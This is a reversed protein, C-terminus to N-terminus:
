KQKPVLIYARQGSTTTLWRTGVIAGWGTAAPDTIANPNSLAISVISAAQQWAADANTVLSDVSFLGEGEKYIGDRGSAIGRVISDNQENIDAGYGSSSLVSSVGSNLNLAVSGSPIANKGKGSGLFRGTVVDANDRLGYFRYSSSLDVVTPNSYDYPLSSPYVVYGAQDSITGFNNIRIWDGTIQSPLLQPVFMPPACVVAGSPYGSADFGIRIALVGDDNIDINKEGVTVQGPVMPMLTFTASLSDYLFARQPDGSREAVGVIQDSQNVSRAITATWGFVQTGNPEFWSAGANLDLMAGGPYWAVALLQGSIPDYANGVVTGMDNIDKASTEWGSGWSAPVDLYQMEYAASATSGGGGGGGGGSGGGGNGGKGAYASASMLSCLTLALTLKLVGNLRKMTTRWTSYEAQTIYHTLRFQDLLGNTWDDVAGTFRTNRSAAEGTKVAYVHICM